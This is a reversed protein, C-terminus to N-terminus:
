ASHELWSLVALGVLVGIAAVALLLGIVGPTLTTGLLIRPRHQSSDTV